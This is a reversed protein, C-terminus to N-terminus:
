KGVYFSAIILGYLGLILGLFWYKFNDFQSNLKDIGKFLHIDNNELIKIKVEEETYTRQTM